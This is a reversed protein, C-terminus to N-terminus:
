RSPARVCPPRCPAECRATRRRAAWTPHRCPSTASAEPALPQVHDSFRAEPKGAPCVRSRRRGLGDVVTRGWEFRALGSAAHFTARLATRECGRPVQASRDCRQKRQESQRRVASTACGCRRRRRRSGSTISGCRAHRRGTAVISQPQAGVHLGPGPAHCGAHAVLATLQGGIALAVQLRHAGLTALTRVAATHRARRRVSRLTWPALGVVQERAATGRM